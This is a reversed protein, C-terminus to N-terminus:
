VTKVVAVKCTKTSMEFRHNTRHRLELYDAGVRQAILIAEGLLTREAEPTEGVVGGANLFPMSTVFSGFLRSKQWVIPLIGRVTGSEEAMLYFTPWEFVNEIVQKWGLRHFNTADPHDAVFQEWRNADSTTDCNFIRM